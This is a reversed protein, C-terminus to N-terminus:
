RVGWEWIGYQIKQPVMHGSQKLALMIQGRHHSEHSILYGLFGTALPKFGKIKGGPLTKEFLQEIAKGSQQLNEALHTKTINQKDIKELGELLAPDAVKLWMMRVGHMHAFQEGVPRGKSAALDKLNEENISELLYLNINNHIQWTETLFNM